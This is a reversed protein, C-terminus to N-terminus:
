SSIEMENAMWIDISMGWGELGYQQVMYQEWGYILRWIQTDEEAWNADVTWHCNSM